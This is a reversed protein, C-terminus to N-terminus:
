SHKAVILEQNVPKIKTKGFTDIYFFINTKREWVTFIYM